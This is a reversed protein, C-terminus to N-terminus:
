HMRHNDAKNTAAAKIACARLHRHISNGHIKRGCRDCIHLKL